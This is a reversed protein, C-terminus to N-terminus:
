CRDDISEGAFPIGLLGYHAKTAGDLDFYTGMGEHVFMGNEITVKAVAWPKVAHEECSAVLVSLVSDGMKAEVVLTEKYRDRSFVAEESQLNREYDALPEQGIENPCCPFETPTKWRRQMALPTQSQIAPEPLLPRAPPLPQINGHVRNRLVGDKRFKDSKTWASLQELSKRADEKSITRLWNIDPDPIAATAPDAAFKELSGYAKIIRKRFGPHRILNDLSSIWRLNEVCNNGRDRDIHDVVHNESPPHGLFALAVIRHVTKSGICMYRNGLHQRGFTWTEDLSTKRRDPRCKRYVSGNDRVLFKDGEFEVEKESGYHDLTAMGGIKGCLTWAWGIKILPCWPPCWAREAM